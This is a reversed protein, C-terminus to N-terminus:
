RSDKLLARARYIWERNEKRFFQPNSRAQELITNLQIRTQETDGTERLAVAFWYRGEPDSSRNNLFFRLFEISKEIEGTHLYGKGVERFIDGLGYNPNLRYTEEYQELAEPWEKKLEYTSGLFYHYDPDEPDIKIANVFYGQAAKLNRRKLHILGLQYHADADQPNATLFRLHKQFARDSTQSAFYSRIWQYSLYLLPILIFFPLAFFFATLLYYVPLTFWSLAFVVLAAAVSLYNLVKIAWITYVVLLVLLILLGISIGFEGVVLFHPTLWQLPATILLLIAWLPLLASVHARWEKQSVSMGLGYGSISNSLLILAPIYLLSLFLLAQVLNIELISRILSAQQLGPERLQAYVTNRVMIFALFGLVFCLVGRIIARQEAMKQLSGLHFRLIGLLDFLFKM